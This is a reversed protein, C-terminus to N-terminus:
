SQYASSLFTRVHTYPAYSSAQTTSIGTVTVAALAVKYSAPPDAVKSFRLLLEQEEHKADWASIPRTTTSNLPAALALPSALLLALGLFSFM